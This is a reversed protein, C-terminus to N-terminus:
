FAGIFSLTLTNLKEVMDKRQRMVIIDRGKFQQFRLSGIIVRDMVFDYQDGFYM